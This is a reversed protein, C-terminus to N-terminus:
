QHYIQLWVPLCSLSAWYAPSLAWLEKPFQLFYMECNPCICSIGLIGSKPSVIRNRQSIEQLKEMGLQLRVSLYSLVKMYQRWDSFILWKSILKGGFGPFFHFGHKHCYEAGQFHSLINSAEIIHTSVIRWLGFSISWVHDCLGFPWFSCISRM